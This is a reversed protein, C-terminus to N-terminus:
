RPVDEGGGNIVIGRPFQCGQGPVCLHAQFVSLQCAPSLTHGETNKMGFALGPAPCSTLLESVMVILIVFM